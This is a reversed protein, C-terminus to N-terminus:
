SIIYKISFIYNGSSGEIKYPTPKNIEVSTVRQLAATMAKTATTIYNLKQKRYYILLKLVTIYYSLHLKNQLILFSITRIKFNKEGHKYWQYHLLLPM